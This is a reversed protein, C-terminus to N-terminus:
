KGWAIHELVGEIVAGKDEKSLGLSRSIEELVEAPSRPEDFDIAVQEQKAGGKEISLKMKKMWAAVEPSRDSMWEAMSKIGMMEPADFFLLEEVPKEMSLAQLFSSAEDGLDEENKVEASVKGYWAGLEKGLSHSDASAGFLAACDRVLAAKISEADVSVEDKAQKIRGLLAKLDDAWSFKAADYGMAALMGGTLLEKINVVSGSDRFLELLALATTNSFSDRSRTMAPIQGYWAMMADRAREWLVGEEGSGAPAGFLEILKELYEKEESGSIYTEVHWEEPDTVMGQVTEFSINQLTLDEHSRSILYMHGGSFCDFRYPFKRFYAALLLELVMPSLGFPPKMLAIVVDKLPVERKENGRPKFHEDLLMWMEYFPSDGSIQDDIEFRPESPNDGVQRLLDKDILAARLIKESENEPDEPVPIPQRNYLLIDVAEKIVRQLGAKPSRTLLTRYKLIPAKTFLDRMMDSLTNLDGTVDFEELGQGQWYFKLSDPKLFERLKKKLSNQTSKIKEKGEKEGLSAPENLFQEQMFLINLSQLVNVEDIFNVMKKSLAMIIHPNRSLEGKLAKQFLPLDGQALLPCYLILVDGRYHRNEPRYIAEVERLFPAPDQLEEATVYRGYASRDAFFRQNYQKALLRRPHYHKNLYAFPKVTEKIKENTEKLLKDFLTVKKEVPIDYTGTKDDYVLTERDVMKKLSEQIQKIDRDGLHLANLINKETAPLKYSNIMQMTTILRMIRRSNPVEGVRPYSKEMTELYVTYLPNEKINKEFYSYLYDITYLSLRGNPQVTAINEIFYRLGGPMTDNFFTSINRDPSSLREGMRPLCFLSLPHLPYTRFLLKEKLEKLSIGPYLDMEIIMKELLAYDEHQYLEDRDISAPHELVRTGIFDELKASRSFLNFYHVDDILRAIKSIDDKFYTNPARTSIGLFVLPFESRRCFDVFEEFASLEHSDPAEDQLALFRDFDDFVIALGRVDTNERLFEMTDSIIQVLSGEAKPLYELGEQYLAGNLSMILPSRLRSEGGSLTEPFTVLIKKVANRANRITSFASHDQERIKGLIFKCEPDNIDRGLINALMLALHSKGTGSSGWMIHVRKNPNGAFGEFVSKILKLGSPFLVFESIKASNEDHLYFTKRVVCRSMVTKSIKVLSQMNVTKRM